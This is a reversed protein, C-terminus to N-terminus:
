QVGATGITGNATTFTTWPSLSGTEFDGNVIGNSGVASAVAAFTLATALGAGLVLLTRRM